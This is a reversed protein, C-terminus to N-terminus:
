LGTLVGRLYNVIRALWGYFVDGGFINASGLVFFLLIVWFVLKSLILAYSNKIQQENVTDARAARKFVADLGQVIKRTSMSLGHAILWGVTLLALAGIIQPAVSIIQQSLESFTENIAAQWDFANSTEAM